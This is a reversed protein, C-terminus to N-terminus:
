NKFNIPILQGVKVPKRKKMGPTWKPSARIVRLAEADLLQHVSRIVTADVVSGDVDVYFQIMVTGSIGEEYAQPPYAVESAIYKMFEVGTPDGNFIPRVVQTNMRSSKCSFLFLAAFVALIVYSNGMKAKAGHKVESAKQLKRKM